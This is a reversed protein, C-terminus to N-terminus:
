WKIVNAIFENEQTLHQTFPILFFIGVGAYNLNSPLVM